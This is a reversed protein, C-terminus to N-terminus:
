GARAAVGFYETNYEAEDFNLRGVSWQVSLGMPSICVFGVKLFYQRLWAWTLVTTQHSWEAVCFAIRRSGATDGSSLRGSLSEKM